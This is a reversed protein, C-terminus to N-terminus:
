QPLLPTPLTVPEATTVVFRGDATPVIVQQPEPLGCILGVGRKVNGEAMRAYAGVSIDCTLIPLLDAKKDNYTVRDRIGAEVIGDIAQTAQPGYPVLSCGGLLLVPLFRIM